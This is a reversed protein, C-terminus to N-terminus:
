STLPPISSGFSCSIMIVKASVLYCTTKYSIPWFLFMFNKSSAQDKFNALMFQKDVDFEVFQTEIGSCSMFLACFVGYLCHVFTDWWHIEWEEWLGKSFSISSNNSDCIWYEWGGWVQIGLLFTEHFTVPFSISCIPTLQKALDVAFYTLLM